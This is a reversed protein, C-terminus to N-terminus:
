IDRPKVACRRTGHKNVGLNKTAIFPILLDNRGLSVGCGDIACGVVGGCVLGFYHYFIGISRRAFTGQYVEADVVIGLKVGYRGKTGIATTIGPNGCPVSIKEYPCFVFFALFM